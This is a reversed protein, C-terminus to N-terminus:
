IKYRGLKIYAGESNINEVIEWNNDIGMTKAMEQFYYMAFGVDAVSHVLDISNKVFAYVCGGELVFRWPQLNKYSPASKLESFLDLMNMQRLKETAPKEFNEDLFVIDEVKLRSSTPEPTFAKKEEPYGLAIVYKADAGKPGFVAEKESKIDDNLTIICSGLNLELLKTILDGMYFAAKIHNIMQDDSYIVPVYAGSKIFVGAYGAKGDLAKFVKEGDEVLSLDVEDWGLKEKVEVIANRVNSADDTNLRRDQFDRVSKREKLYTKISKM